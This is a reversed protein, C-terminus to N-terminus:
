GTLKAVKPTKTKREIRELTTNAQKQQEVIKETNKATQDESSQRSGRSANAFLALGESSSADVASLSQRANAIATGAGQLRQQLNPLPNQPGPPADNGGESPTNAKAAEDLAAQWEKRADDL